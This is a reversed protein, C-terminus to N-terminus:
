PAVPGSSTGGPPPVPARVQIPNTMVVGGHYMSPPPLGSFGSATASGTANTASGGSVAQWGENGPARPLTGPALPPPPKSAVDGSGRSGELLEMDSLVNRVRINGHVGNRGLPVNGLVPRPAPKALGM